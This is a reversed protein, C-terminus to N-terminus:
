LEYSKANLLNLDNIQFSQYEVGDLETMMKAREFANFQHEKKGNRAEHKSVIANDKNFNSQFKAQAQAKQKQLEEDSREFQKHNDQFIKCDTDVCKHELIHNIFNEQTM